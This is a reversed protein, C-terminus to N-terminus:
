RDACRRSRVSDWRQHPTAPFRAPISVDAPAPTSLSTAAPYAQPGLQRGQQYEADFDHGLTRSIARTTEDRLGALHTAAIVGIDTRIQDAAGILRAALRPDDRHAAVLGLGELATAIGSPHQARRCVELTEAYHANAEDWRGRHIALMATLSLASSVGEAYGVARYAALSRAALPAAEVFRQQEVLHACIYDLASALIMPEGLKEAIVIAETLLADGRTTDGAAHASRGATACVLALPWGGVHRLHKMAIHHQKDANHHDGRAWAAMGLIEYGIGILEDDCAANADDIQRGAAQEAAHLDGQAITAAALGFHLRARLAPDSVGAALSAEIRQHSEALRGDLFWPWALAAALRAATDPDSSSATDAAARLDDCAPRLRDMWLPSEATRLGPAAGEALALHYNLHRRRAAAVTADDLGSAFQRVTELMRFRAEGAVDTDRSLLSRRLLSDVDESAAPTGIVTEAAVMGFPGAFVSLAALTERERENLLDVSWAIVDALSRHRPDTGRRTARLASKRDTLTTELEDITLTAVRAAALEIALPLRDLRSCVRDVTEEPGPFQPYAATAVAIFLEIAARADLGGLPVTVEGPVDLCERSTALVRLKPCSTTLAAALDACADVLHECNDLILLARRHRLYELLSERPPRSAQDVMGLADTVARPLHGPDRVPALEVFWAGEPHSAALQHGAEVALRTKGAGGPGVLTVLRSSRVAALLYALEAQRGVLTELPAPLRFVGRTAAVTDDRVLAALARRDPVGLKRLLSAVHSEATRVSIFLQAAIEANTLHDGVLALVESERASIGLSRLRVPDTM